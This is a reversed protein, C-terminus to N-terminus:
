LTVSTNSMVVAQAQAGAPLEAQSGPILFGVLTCLGCVIALGVKSDGSASIQAGSLPVLTGDVANIANIGVSLEGGKGVASAKSVNSVQGKAITGASIVVNGEVIVDTVVRFDVTNGAVVNKSTLNTTTALIVPTGAKLTVQKQAFAAPALFSAIVLSLVAVPAKPSIFKFM